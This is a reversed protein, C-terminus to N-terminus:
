ESFRHDLVPALDAINGAAITESVVGGLATVASGLPGLVTSLTSLLPTLLGLIQQWTAKPKPDTFFKTTIDDISGIGLTAANFLSDWMSHFFNSFNIYATYALFRQALLNNGFDSASVDKCLIPACVTPCLDNASDYLELPKLPSESSDYTCESSQGTDTKLLEGADVQPRHLRRQLFFAQFIRILLTAAGHLQTPYSWNKRAHLFLEQILSGQKPQSLSFGLVLSTPV